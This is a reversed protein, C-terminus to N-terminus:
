EIELAEYETKCDDHPELGQKSLWAAAKGSDILEVTDVKGQFASWHHIVWQGGATRYLCEHEWQSGTAKSIHDNGNFFTQEKICEAKDADFWHGGPTTLAIRKM